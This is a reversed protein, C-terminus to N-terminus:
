EAADPYDNRKREDNSLHQRVKEVIMPLATQGRVIRWQLERLIKTSCKGDRQAIGNEIDELIAKQIRINAKRDFPTASFPMTCNVLDEPEIKWARNNKPTILPVKIVEDGVTAVVIKWHCRALDHRPGSPVFIIDGAALTM